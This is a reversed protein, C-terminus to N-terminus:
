ILQWAAASTLCLPKECLVHKGAQLAKISHEAHYGNPTCISIVDIDKEQEMLDEISYYSTANYKQAFSDAKQPIIDCVAVLIGTKVINEAHREAIRGCGSQAFTYM